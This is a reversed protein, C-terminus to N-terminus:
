LGRAILERTSALLTDPDLGLEFIMACEVPGLPQPARGLGLAIAFRDAVSVAHGVQSYGSDPGFDRYGHHRRIGEVVLAPLNWKAAMRAGLHAHASAHVAARLRPSADALAPHSALTRLAVRGIDHLLGVIFAYQPDFGISQSLHRSILGVCVAHDREARAAREDDDRFVHCEMVSQYLIDRVNATGLRQLAAGLSRAKQGTAYAPSNAVALMRSALVADRSVVKELTAMAVSPDNALRMADAATDPLMPLKFGPGDAAEVLTRSIEAVRRPTLAVADAEGEDIVFTRVGEDPRRTRLTRLRPDM